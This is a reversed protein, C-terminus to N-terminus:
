LRNGDTRVRGWGWAGLAQSVKVISDHHITVLVSLVTIVITLIWLAAYRGDTWNLVGGCGAMLGGDVCSPSYLPLTQSFLFTRIYKPKTLFEKWQVQKYEFEEVEPDLGGSKQIPAEPNEAM